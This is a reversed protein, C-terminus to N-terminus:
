AAIRQLIVKCPIDSTVVVRHSKHLPIAFYDGPVLPYVEEGVIINCTGEAILFKEYEDDHMELPAENKIWVIATIAAPSYGIIKAYLDEADSPLVMDERNLWPAYDNLESAENLLPPTTSPEGKEMRETFDITAMLFPKVISSPAVANMMAYQELARSIEEIEKRVESHASIMQEVQEAEEPTINGLVYQELIGSDIFESITSM